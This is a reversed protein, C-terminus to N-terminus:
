VGGALRAALYGAAAAVATLAVGWSIDAVTVASPWHRLTAQNTLDYTGYAVLGLAAGRWLASTWKGATLGPAVALVVIGAVYLFYFITAPLVRFGDMLLDGLQPRYLRKAAISLWVGDLLLVTLATGAYATIWSM